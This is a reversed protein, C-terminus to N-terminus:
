TSLMVVAIEGYAQAYAGPLACSARNKRAVNGIVLRKIGTRGHAALVILDILFDEAGELINEFPDGKRVHYRVKIHSPIVERCFQKLLIESSEETARLIKARAQPETTYREISAPDAQTIGTMYIEDFPNHIVHLVDLM